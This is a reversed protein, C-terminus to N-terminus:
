EGPLRGWEAALNEFLSKSDGTEDAHWKTREEGPLRRIGLSLADDMLGQEDHGYGLVHGFEHMVATLLDARNYAPADPSAALEDLGSTRKFEEDDSPTADVFWGYGSADADIQVTQRSAVALLDDPLDTIEFAVAELM